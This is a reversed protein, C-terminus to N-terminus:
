SMWEKFDTLFQNVVEDTKFHQIMNPFFKPPVTVIHAGAVGAACVDSVSRMSGAIIEVKPYSVNLLKYTKGVVAAPNFDARVLTGKTLLDQRQSAFKQERGGDRIRGCFLSVYRAGAAAAMIAQGVTMCCTCNVSFGTKSLRKIAELEDWGIQVKISLHRYKLYDSIQHAQEIIVEPNQSFVEVSLHIGDRYFGQYRNLLKVIRALHVLYDAKPEQALLSPNTTVGRIFGRKLAKEIEGLNATDAFLKM